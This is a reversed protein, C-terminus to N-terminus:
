KANAFLFVFFMITPSALTAAVASFLFRLLNKSQAPSDFSGLAFSRVAFFVGGVNVLDVVGSATSVAFAIFHSGIAVNFEQMSTLVDGVLVMAEDASIDTCRTQLRPCTPNALHIM